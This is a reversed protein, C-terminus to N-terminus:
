QVLWKLAPYKEKAFSVLAAKEMPAAGNNTIYMETQVTNSFLYSLYSIAAEDKNADGSPVVYILKDFTIHEHWDFSVPIPSTAYYGPLHAQITSIDSVTGLYM